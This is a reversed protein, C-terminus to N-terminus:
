DDAQGPKPRVIRAWELAADQLEAVAIALHPATLDTENEAM